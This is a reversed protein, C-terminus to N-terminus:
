RVRGHRPVPPLRRLWRRCLSLLASHDIEVTPQYPGTALCRGAGAAFSQDKLSRDLFQLWAEGSLGACDETPFACLAARRLLISLEAVLSSASLNNATELNSLQRLAQRRYRLRRHRRWLLVLLLALVLILGLVLWWGPALPWWGPPPPLHIDRLPLAQALQKPDATPM